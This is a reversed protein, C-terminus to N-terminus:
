LQTKGGCVKIVLETTMAQPGHPRQQIRSRDAGPQATKLLSSARESGGNGQRYFTLKSLMWGMFIFPVFM